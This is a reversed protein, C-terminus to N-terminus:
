PEGVLHLFADSVRRFDDPRSWMLPHGGERTLFVRSGRIQQAMNLVQPGISPLAQDELSATLLVPCRIQALHGGFWDGGREAFRRMLNTDANIVQEWDAGHAQQWFAVQDPTRRAREPMVHTKMKEPPYKEVCSDAIVAQVAEPVLIATLLAIVGGGSTGMVISREYGLHEMLGKVQRAGQEWWDDPWLDLRDSQGTGLFDLSIAHYRAGFYSLEDRHLASSATNGPLIFFLSGNGQERYFLRHGRYTFFPM